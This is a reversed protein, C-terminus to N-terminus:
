WRRFSLKVHFAQAGEIRAIVASMTYAHERCFGLKGAPRPCRAKTVRNVAVCRPNKLTRKVRAKPKKPAARRRTPPSPSAAAKLRAEVFRRSVDGWAM